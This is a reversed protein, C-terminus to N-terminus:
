NGHSEDSFGQDCALGPSCIWHSCGEMCNVTKSAWEYTGFVPARKNM